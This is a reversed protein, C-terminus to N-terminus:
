GEGRVVKTAMLISTTTKEVGDLVGIRDVVDNLASVGEAEVLVIMDYEGSIAHLTILEPMQTLKREITQTLRPAVKLMIQARILREDYDAGLRVTYGAIVGDRELRDMRAYVSARSLGLAQALSTIPQRADERLLAILRRDQADIIVKNLRDTM